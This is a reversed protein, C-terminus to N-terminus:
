IQVFEVFRNLEACYAISYPYQYTNYETYYTNNLSVVVLQEILLRRMSVHEFTGEFASSVRRFLVM